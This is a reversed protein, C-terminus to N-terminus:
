SDEAAILVKFTVANELCLDRLLLLCNQFRCLAADEAKAMSSDTLLLSRQTSTVSAGFTLQVPADV